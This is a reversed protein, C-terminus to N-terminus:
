RLVAARAGSHGKSSLGMPGNENKGDKHDDGAQGRAARSRFTAAADIRSPRRATGRRADPTARHSQFHIRRGADIAGRALGTRAVSRGRRKVPEAVHSYSRAAKM